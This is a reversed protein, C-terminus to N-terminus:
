VSRKRRVLLGVCGTALLVVSTPEPVALVQGRIEGAGFTSSHINIYWLGDSLDSGQAASLTATGNFTGSQNGPDLTTSLSLQVGANATPGAAGHFHGASYVGSLGSFSGSYTFENTLTDFTATASGLGPSGTGAGASAAAGTIASTFDITQGVASQQSMAICAFLCICNSFIKTATM